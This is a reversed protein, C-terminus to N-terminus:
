GSPTPPVFEHGDVYMPRRRNLSGTMAHVDRFGERGCAACLNPNLWRPPQPRRHPHRIWSLGAYVMLGYILATAIALVESM